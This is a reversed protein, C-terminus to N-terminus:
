LVALFSGMAANFERPTELNAMHGSRPITVLTSGTVCRQMHEADSPPTITDEDGVIITTPVTVRRLVDASDPRDKMAELGAAITEPPQAEILARVRAVVAPREARTTAGLINPLMEDAIAAAGSSRALAISHERAARREPTDVSTRTDALILGAVREPAQRLIGFIVYGGLSLGGFVAREIGAADLSDVVARGYADMTHEATLPRGDFGPLPPTLIRWGPAADLQPAWMGPGM